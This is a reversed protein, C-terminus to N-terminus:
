FAEYYRDGLLYCSKRSFHIDDEIVDPGCQTKRGMQQLNSCLGDTEVFEGYPYEAGPLQSATIHLTKEIHQTAHIVIRIAENPLLKDKSAKIIELAESFSRIANPMNESVIYERM